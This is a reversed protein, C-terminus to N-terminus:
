AAIDQGDYPVVSCFFFPIINVFVIPVTSAIRGHLQKVSMRKVEFAAFDYMGIYLSDYCRGARFLTIRQVGAFVTFIRILIRIRIDNRVIIFSGNYSSSAGLLAISQMFAFVAIIKVFVSIGINYRVAESIPYRCFFRSASFGPYLLVYACYAFLDFVFCYRSVTMIILCFLDSGGACFLTIRQM